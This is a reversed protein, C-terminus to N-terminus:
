SETEAILRAAAAQRDVLAGLQRIREVAPLSRDVMATVMGLAALRKLIVQDRAPNGGIILTPRQALVAEVSPQRRFREANPVRGKLGPDLPVMVLTQEADLADIVEAHGPALVVVRAAASQAARGPLASMSVVLLAAIM